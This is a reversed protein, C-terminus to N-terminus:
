SQRIEEVMKQDEASLSDYMPQVAQKFKELETEELTVICCGRELALLKAEQERQKWLEREYLASEKACQRIVDVFAEDVEAIKEMAEVSIIQMEPLRTHEDQLFYCATEYHGASVYSPWNNDAGYIKETQMASYVDGYDLKIPIAGLLEVMRSMADSDQVRIRMSQLDELTHIPERSYFSRAGADFWSLGYLGVEQMSGLYYDGIESDLVRFMHESDTYLFPLQLVDLKPMVGALTGMCARCMDIGGFQVQQVVSNEGGLEGNPYVRIMIKGNTREEVLEAFYQAAETTPYDEPQNDAYRLILEPKNKDAHPASCGMLSFVCILICIGLRKM